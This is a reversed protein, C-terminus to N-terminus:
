ERTHTDHTSTEGTQNSSPAHNPFPKKFIQLNQNPAANPNDVTLEGKELME